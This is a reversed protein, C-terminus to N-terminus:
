VHVKHSLGALHYLWIAGLTCHGTHLATLPSNWRFFISFLIVYVWYVSTLWQPWRALWYRDTQVKTTLSALVPFPQQLCWFSRLVKLLIVTFLTWCQHICTYSPFILIALVAWMVRCKACSNMLSVQVTWPFSSSLANIGELIAFLMNPPVIFLAIFLVLNGTRCWM